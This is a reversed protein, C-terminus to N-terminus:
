YFKYNLKGMRERGGDPDAHVAEQDVERVLVDVRLLIRVHQLEFPRQVGFAVTEQFHGRTRAFGYSQEGEDYRVHELVGVAHTLEDVTRASHGLDLFHNRFEFDEDLVVVFVRGLLGVEGTEHEARALVHADMRLHAPLALALDHVGFAVSERGAVHPLALRHLLVGGGALVVLAVRELALLRHHRRADIREVVQFLEAPVAIPTGVEHGPVHHTYHCM